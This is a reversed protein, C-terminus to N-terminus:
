KKAGLGAAKDQLRFAVPLKVWVDVAKGDQTAPKFKWQGVATVASAGIEPYAAIGELVQVKSVTGDAKVLAELMVRGEIGAQKAREPYVPAVYSDPL